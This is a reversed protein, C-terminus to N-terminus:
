RERRKECLTRDYNQQDISVRYFQSFVHLLFVSPFCHHRVCDTIYSADVADYYLCWINHCVPYRYAFPEAM